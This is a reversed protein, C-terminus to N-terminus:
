PLVYWMTTQEENPTYNSSKIHYKMVDINPVCIIIEVAYQRLKGRYRNGLARHFNWFCDYKTDHHVYPFFLAVHSYYNRNIITFINNVPIGGM